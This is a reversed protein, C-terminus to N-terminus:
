KDGAQATKILGRKKLEKKLQIYAKKLFEDSSDPLKEKILKLAMMEDFKMIM